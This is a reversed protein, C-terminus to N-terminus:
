NKRARVVLCDGRGTVNWFWLLPFFVGRALAMLGAVLPAKRQLRVVADMNARWLRAIVSQAVWLAPTVAGAATVEFGEQELLRMLRPLTFHVIHFPVHWNIWDAGALGALASDANPLSIWVQGGPKLIRRVHRVMERPDSAHELVNSLVAVDFPAEPRFDEILKEHVVFGRARAAAAAHTNLELGEAAFGNRAYLSLGRGENCGIDILRGAGKAAHFSVDGDLALMLRYFPSFLFRERAAAYGSDTKGGYNYWREYLGKLAEADPRPFTQRGGCSICARIAYEGPSGFRNDVVRTVIERTPAGCFLCPDSM